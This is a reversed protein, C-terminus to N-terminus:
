SSKKFSNETRKEKPMNRVQIHVPEYYRLEKGNSYIYARGIVQATGFYTKIKKIITLKENAGQMAALKSKIDMRNPTGNGFHDIKFTIETRDILPNKKEEIIEINLSM